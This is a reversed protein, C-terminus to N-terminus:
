FPNSCGLAALFTDAEHRRKEASRVDGAQELAAALDIRLCASDYAFGLEDERTIAASLHRVADDSRGESLAIVGDAVLLSIGRRGAHSGAACRTVSRTTEALLELEGAAALTRLVADVGFVTPWQDDLATLVEATVTRLSDVEGSVLLWPLVVCAMPIIRQPEGSALALEKFDAFVEDAAVLDGRRLAIGGVITRWLLNSTTSLAPGNIRALTTEAEAWRGAPVYLLGAISLELYAAIIPPPPLRGARGAAAVEEIEDVPLYGDASWVFNVIARYAEEHAGVSAAAEVIELVEAAEPGIGEAARTTFLNIRANVAAPVDGVRGAVAIAELSHDISEHRNQLMELQSRRALARALQESEPLGALALVAGNAADLADQWDGTMWSVRSRLALVASRTAPNGAAAFREAELLGNIADAWRAETADVEALALLASARQEDDAALSVAHQIQTRAAIFAGRRLASEGAALLTAHARAIIMSDDEGYTIAQRYHYAALETTEGERDPAVHRIWEAVRRHLDRREARPLSSYAVDRTLAHKFAFEQLGTMASRPSELVLGRRTLPAVDDEAVDVASPWFSRGVVSCRRLADRANADLLDIRAAIVGHVSDPIRVDSLRGTAVWSGNQRDLAGEEILMQLMEELFFPNGEASALVPRRLNDPMQGEGLLSSVLQASEDPSLPALALTTANQKGAGWTPRLDLFEPRATCLILVRTDVLTEALHELLDLLVASAWHIDEVVFVTLDGRGLAGIYRQWADELARRAYEPDATIISSGSVAFGITWAIAEFVDTEREGVASAIATRLKELATDVPDTDFIGAETKAAEALSWYTIGEGYPLCRGRMVRAEPLRALLEGLLRSKGVGAPGFLTVLQPVRESAVREAVADLVAVEQGRGIFPGTLGTPRLAPEVLASLAVWAPVVSQKGKADVDRRAGYAVTRSTATHTREGVLVEGPKAGQQLRAAVNVADGSVMLEGRAAGERSAVVDGTNVGIRLGVEARYSDRVHEAFAAFREHAALAARVAREPDDEHTQPIGFVALIADGVFKETTGGFREVETHLVSFLEGQLVRVDEPDLQEGLATSGSLDAFLVTVVRREHREDTVGVRRM